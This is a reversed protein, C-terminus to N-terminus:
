GLLGRRNFWRLIGFFVALIVAWVALYGFRWKYEPAEFNMGYVGVIFTLPMFVASLVTLLRIVENTRHSAVAIQLNLLNDTFEVAERARFHLADVTERPEQLSSASAGEGLHARLLAERTRLLVWALVSARRKRVFIQELSRETLRRRGLLSTEFEVLDNTLQNLPAEYTQLSQLILDDLLVGGPEEIQPGIEEYQRRLRSLVPHDVRHVTLLRQPTLFITLPQTTEYAGASASTAVGSHLRLVVLTFDAQREVKPLQHMDLCEETASEPLGFDTSLASLAPRDPAAVDIWSFSNDPSAFVTQRVARSEALILMLPFIRCRQIPRTVSAM